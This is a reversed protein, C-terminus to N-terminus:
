IHKNLDLFLQMDIGEILRVKIGANELKTKANNGEVIFTPPERCGIIVLDINSQLIRDVCSTNKSLRRVCPEMTTYLITSHSTKNQKNTDDSFQSKYDYLDMLCCQEAHTNGPYKRSYGTSLIYPKIENDDKFLRIIVAGVRFANPSM